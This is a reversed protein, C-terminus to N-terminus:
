HFPHHLLITEARDPGTSVMALPVSTLTAIRELYARANRPLADITRAGVTSESWGPLTEYRPTCEAVADAGSPLLALPKGNVTYGTCIRIERMGDLVDLKTICVGDVGNLQFSRALAPIDLWGCRRPRGTVSGFENGRKALGAGVEDTLETPFPGTGV